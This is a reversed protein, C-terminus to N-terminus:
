RNGGWEPFRRRIDEAIEECTLRLITRTPMSRLVTRGYWKSLIRSDALVIIGRDDAKRILRGVAQRTDIVAASLSYHTWANPDREERVKSLPDTPPVFPLKPIIVGRLTEGPADFGAWFTKLAFLSTDKNNLFSDRLAKFSAGQKQREVVLGAEDLVPQVAEYCAEMDARNAFLTLLGGHSALHVDRLLTQLRRLYAENNGFGFEPMDTPVYIVMNRDFDFGSALSLTKAASWDTTNLGMAREFAEFSGAVTLTASTFVVSHTRRYFTDNLRAGVDIVQASLREQLKDAKQFVTVSYVYRPDTVGFVVDGAGIMDRMDFSFVGVENQLEADADAAAMVALVETTATLVPEALKMVLKGSRAVGSFTEEARMDESLWVAEGYAARSGARGQCFKKLRKVDRVYARVAEAFPLAAAIAKDASEKASPVRRGVRRFLNKQTDDGASREALRLLEDSRLEVAFAERAEEEAGHAEDIVWYRIPPLLAGDAEVDAFLLAHNTVVIDVNEAARRAGHAFCSGGFYPCKRKLCENSSCTYEYRSVLRPDFHLNDADDYDSQLVFTVLSAIGPASTQLGEGDAAEVVKAGRNVLVDIKRLCPYHAIGKLAAYTVPEEGRAAMGAALAPLEHFVLQDLLANTKTAVGMTINSKKAAMLEPVLYAMSKGVGTGAEVALNESTAFARNVARAMQLQESRLEYDSYLSGVLGDPAFAADIEATTAFALPPVEVMGEGAARTANVAAAFAAAVPGTGKAAAFVAANEEKVAADVKPRRQPLAKLRERRLRRLSFDGNGMRNLAEDFDKGAATLHKRAFYAFVERTPWEATDALGAIVCLVDDPLADVGALLIRLVECTAAVDADARHASPTTGFARVLDLLRFSKLRPLAIRALDLTDIWLNEKLAAAELHKTLQGRDFAANHAVLTADGVFATLAACAEEPTPAGILDAESIGTLRMVDDPIFKGPNVFTVFWDVVRGGEVRAAAIQMLDDNDFTLGTTETDVVVLNSDFPGFDSAAARAPLSAYLAAVDAPTGDTIYDALNRASAPEPSQNKM